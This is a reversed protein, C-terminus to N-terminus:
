NNKVADKELVCYDGKSWASSCILKHDVGDIVLHPDRFYNRNYKSSSTTYNLVRVGDESSCEYRGFFSDKKCEGFEHLEENYYYGYVDSKFVNSEIRVVSNDVYKVEEYSYPNTVCAALAFVVVALSTLSLFFKRRKMSLWSRESCDNGFTRM